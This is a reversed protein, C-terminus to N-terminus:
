ALMGGATSAVQGSLYDRVIQERERPPINMVVRIGLQRLLREALPGMEGALLLEDIGLYELLAPLLRPEHPPAQHVSEFLIAKKQQDVQFIALEDCRGLWLSPQGQTLPIAIISRNYRRRTTRM